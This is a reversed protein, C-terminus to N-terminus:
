IYRLIQLVLGRLYLGGRSVKVSARGIILGGRTYAGRFIFTIYSFFLEACLDIFTVKAQLVITKTLFISIKNIHYYIKIHLLLRSVFVSVCVARRTYAGRM